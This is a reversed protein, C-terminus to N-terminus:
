QTVSGGGAAALELAAVREALAAQRNEMARMRDEISGDHKLPAPSPTSADPPNVAIPAETSSAASMSLLKQALSMTVAGTEPPPTLSTLGAYPDATRYASCQAAFPCLKNFARCTNYGPVAPVEDASTKAASEKMQEVTAKIAEVQRGVHERDVAPSWVLKSAPAGKTRIYAHAFQTTEAKPCEKFVYQAYINLQVDTALEEPTKAYRFNSTSKWDIIVVDQPSREWLLDARGKLMVEAVYLDLLYSRPHEILIRDTRKPLEPHDVLLQASPHSPIVGELYYREQGEHIRTGEDTAVGSEERVGLVKDAYWRRPCSQYLKIQSASVHSLRGSQVASAATM